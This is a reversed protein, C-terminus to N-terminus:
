LVKEWPCKFTCSVWFDFIRKDMLIAQQTKTINVASMDAKEQNYYCKAQFAGLELSVCKFFEGDIEIEM